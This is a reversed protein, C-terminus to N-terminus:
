APWNNTLKATGESLERASLTITRLHPENDKADFTVLYDVCQADVFSIVTTGMGDRRPIVVKGIRMMRSDAAWHALEDKGDHEVILTIRGGQVITTARGTESTGQFFRYDFHLVNHTDEGLVLKASFAM